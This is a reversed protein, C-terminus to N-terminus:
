GTEDGNNPAAEAEGVSGPEPCWLGFAADAECRKPIHNSALSFINYLLAQSVQLALHQDVAGMMTRVVDLRGAAAAPMMVSLFAEPPVPVLSQLLLLLLRLLLPLYLLLPDAAQLTAHLLPDLVLSM